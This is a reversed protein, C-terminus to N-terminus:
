VFPWPANIEPHLRPHIGSEIMQEAREMLAVLETDDLLGSLEDRLVHGPQLQQLLRRLSEATGPPYPEESFEFMVTRRRAYPNFTLANDIAWIRSDKGKLVAGGKRDANHVLVDFAAVPAFEPLCSDRMTFFNQNPDHEIFQQVSGEGHPGDRVVLPPMHPWGLASSVLFSARERLHLTKYPFDHLPREGKAPKYIAHMPSAGADAPHSKPGGPPRLKLVFVYNSGDPHLGMEDPQWEKLRRLVESQALALKSDSM